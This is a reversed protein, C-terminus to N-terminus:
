FAQGLSIHLATLREPAGPALFGPNIKFGLDVRIPGVPSRYRIGFGVASRLQTIDVYSTRAFVNGTDIFGVADLSGFVPLRLEGNLIVVANGGLPFGNADITGAIVTGDEDITEPRGLQDLAFGRVTTDGGAFFRESAPLDKLPFGKAIGLRASLAVVARPLRPAPRFMQATFYSKALGIESGIAQAALQGNASLYEGDRTNLPDDRTDRVISGSFSSLRVQPFLRDVLPKESPDVREDFVETRQIQYNGGISVTRSLRRTLEASFARRRFDYSSRAQQEFNLNLFADAPTGFVLPERYTGLVRYESFGFESQAQPVPLPTDPDPEVLTVEDRPRLSIRTFLNISRNRGFLNRRGIDFFARPALELREEAAEDETQRIRYGVELGGGYGLTTVPAEEVTVLLDRTFEDGHAVEAIRTRRFLGLAALRRQSENVATLGMPDGPKLQIEREITERRTRTNGGILIHGVKVQSGENVAFVVDAQTRDASLVPTVRVSANRFGLNAYQFLLADRDAATQSVFFPQGPRLGISALLTAEPIVQAGTFRISTVITRAGENIIVRVVVPIEPGPPGPTEAPLADVGARVDVAAFGLRRYLDEIAGADADLVTESFPDLEKLRVLSSLEALPVAVNGSIEVRAVRYLRGRKVTFTLRLEGETQERAHPATADRYGQAHLYEEINNSADELLDEDTSGERAVPVLTEREGSPLVDGAFVLRVRPGDSAAITLNAVRDNDVLEADVSLRAEYYGDDRRDSIYEAAREDIVDREFPRGPALRLASLIERARVVGDMKIEGVRTREGPALDFWLTSRDPAHLVELRPSVTARLYGSTKLQDEVLRAAEPARGATPLGGYRETVLRRLRGEDVGPVDAGSFSVREIPHVPVLDFSIAVGGPATSARVVVDEFRGLSLLHVLSERVERMLLPQGVHNQIAEDIRPDALARGEAELAVSVVVKGLYDAVDARAASATGALCLGALLLPLRM